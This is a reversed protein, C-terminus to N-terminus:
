QAVTRTVFSDSRVIGAILERVDLHGTSFAQSAKAMGCGDYDAAIRGMTFQFAQSTVCDFTDQSQSLVRSLDIANSVPKDGGTAGVLAGTSDIPFGNQTSRFGGLADYEEFAEGMPQFTSHCGACAPNSVHADFRARTTTPASQDAPPLPPIVPPPPPPSKCLFKQLIAKGRFVPSTEAVHSTSGLFGAMTLIGARQAPDLNTKKFTTGTATLGYVSANASNIFTSPTMLLTDLRPGDPLTAWDDIYMGAETQLATKVGANFTPFADTSKDWEPKGFNIGLWQMVFMRMQQKWADPYAAILRAAQAARQDATALQNAAAASVLMDDPPTGVISFSLAAAVENSLLTTKSGNAVAADGLETLYLFDPSQVVARVVWSLGTSFRDTVNGDIGVDRGATYVKMLATVDDASTDRRYAKKGFTQIFTQACTQAAADTTFCTSGYATKTVTAKFTTAITDAALNLSNAFSDSVVLQDSNSFGGNIQSDADLNSLATTTDTALLLNASTQIEVKTLRRVRTTPPTGMTTCTQASPKTGVPGVNGTPDTTSGSPSDSPDSLEPSGIAGTCGTCVIIAVLFRLKM